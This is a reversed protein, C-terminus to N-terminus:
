AFCALIMASLSVISRDSSRPLLEAKIRISLSLLQFELDIIASKGRESLSSFRAIITDFISTAFISNRCIHRGHVTEYQSESILLLVHVHENNTRQM